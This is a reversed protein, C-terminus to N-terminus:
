AWVARASLGDAHRRERRGDDLRGPRSGSPHLRHALPDIGPRVAHGDFVIEGADPPYVGALIKILTSKGAGNQGLLAHVEGPRVDFDVHDLALTGTFRKTLGTVALLRDSDADARCSSHAEAM